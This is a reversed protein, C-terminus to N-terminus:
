RRRWWDAMRFLSSFIPEIPFDYSGLLHVVRGGFGTKFRRLGGYRHNQWGEPSVALLDYRKFGRRKAALMIEFHLLDAAMLHRFNHDSGGYLYSAVTDYFGILASAVAQGKYKALFIALSGEPLAGLMTKFYDKERATFRGRSVALRYLRYFDELAEDRGEDLFVGHRRALNRNYRTKPRLDKELQRESKKLDIWVRWEPQVEVPAKKLGLDRLLNAREGSFEILFEVRALIARRRKAEFLLERLFPRSETKLRLQSSSIEPLYIFNRGFGLHRYLGIIGRGTKLRFSQWGASKKFEAWSENQLLSRM